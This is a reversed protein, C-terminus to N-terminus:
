YSKFYFISFIIDIHKNLCRYHLRYYLYLIILLKKSIFFLFFFCRYFSIHYFCKIDISIYVAWQKKVYKLPYYLLALNATMQKKDEYEDIM